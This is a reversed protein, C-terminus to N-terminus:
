QKSTKQKLLELLQDISLDQPSLNTQSIPKVEKGDSEFKVKSAARQAHENSLHGYVKGILMGGDAHSCWKAITMFDVGSMVCSSIFFHRTDHFHLHPLRAEQRVIEFTGRLSGISGNVCMAPFMFDSDPLRKAHLQRLVTELEPSFDVVTNKDYKTNRLHVQKREWDVDSWKTSLASTVRAGTTRM